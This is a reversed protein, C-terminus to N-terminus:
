STDMPSPSTEGTSATRAGSSATPAGSSATPAASSGTTPGSSATGGGSAPAAGSLDIRDYKDYREKQKYIYYRRMIYEFKQFDAPQEIKCMNNNKMYETDVGADDGSAPTGAMAM